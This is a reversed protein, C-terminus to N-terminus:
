AIVIIGYAFRFQLSYLGACGSSETVATVTVRVTRSDSTIHSCSSAASTASFHSLQMAVVRKCHSKETQHVQSEPSLNCPSMMIRRLHMNAALAPQM